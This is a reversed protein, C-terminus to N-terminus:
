QQEGEFEFSLDVIGRRSRVIPSEPNTVFGHWTRGYWDVFKVELGLTDNFFTMVEQAESEKLATFQLVLIEQKPWDPDSFIQLTGGRSERNVRDFNLRQVDGFEPARITVSSTPSSTPHSLTVTSNKTVAISSPPPAPANPDTGGGITPTYQCLDIKNVYAISHGFSLTDSINLPRVFIPVPEIDTLTLTHDILYVYDPSAVDTLIFSQPISLFVPLSARDSFTVTDAATLATASAKCLVKQDQHSFTVTDPVASVVIGGPIIVGGGGAQSFTITNEASGPTLASLVASFTVTQALALSTPGVSFAIHSFTVTDSASPSFVGPSAAETFTFNNSASSNISPLEVVGQSFTVTQELEPELTLNAEGTQSFTVTQAVGIPFSLLQSQSFTVTDQASVATGLSFEVLAHMALRYLRVDPQAALGAVEAMVRTVRVTSTLTGAVEAITRTVRIAM